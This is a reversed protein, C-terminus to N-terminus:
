PKGMSCLQFRFGTKGPFDLGEALLSCLDCTFYNQMCTNLKRRNLLKCALCVISLEHALIRTIIGAYTKSFIIFRAHYVATETLHLQSCPLLRETYSQILLYQMKNMKGKLSAIKRHLKTNVFIADQENKRKLNIKVSKSLPQPKKENPFHKKKLM